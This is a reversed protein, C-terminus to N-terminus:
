ITYIIRAGYATFTNPLDSTTFWYCYNNNDIVANTITIDETGIAATALTDASAGLTLLDRHLTWTEGTDNGHMVVGTVTAGNPLFVPAVLQGTIASDLDLQNRNDDYAIADVDPHLMSFNHASCSWILGTNLKSM